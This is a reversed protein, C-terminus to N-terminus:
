ITKIKRALIIPLVIHTENSINYSYDGVMVNDVGGRLLTIYVLATNPIHNFIKPDLTTEGNDDPIFATRRVYSGEIDEGYLKKGMWEVCVILGNHNQPDANWRLVFNKVHCVPYMEDPSSIRPSTIEILHPVYQSVVEPETSGKTISNPVFMYEINRGYLDELAYSQQGSKTIHSEHGVPIGDVYVSFPSKLPGGVKTLTSDVLGSSLDVIEENLPDPKLSNLQVYFDTMKYHDNYKGMSPSMSEDIFVPIGGSKKPVYGTPEEQKPDIKNLHEEQTCSIILGTFAFCMIPYILRKM